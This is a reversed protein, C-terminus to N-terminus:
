STKQKLPIDKMKSAFFVIAKVVIYKTIELIRVKFKLNKKSM